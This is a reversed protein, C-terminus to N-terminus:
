CLWSFALFDGSLRETRLVHGAPYSVVHLSVHYKFPPQASVQDLLPYMRLFFTFSSDYKLLGNTYDGDDPENEDGIIYMNDNPFDNDSFEAAIYAVPSTSDYRIADDYSIFSDFSPFLQDPPSDPLNGDPLLVAIM